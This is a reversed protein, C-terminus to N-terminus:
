AVPAAGRRWQVPAPPVWSGVRKEAEFVCAAGLSWPSLAQGGCARLRWTPGLCHVSVIHLGQRQLCTRWHSLLPVRLSSGRGRLRYPSLPNFVCLWVRGGAVLVRAGEELWQGAEQAPPHQLVVDGMCDSALPLPLSGRISGSYGVRDPFVHVTRTFASGSERVSPVPGLWVRPQSPRAQLRAALWTREDELLVQGPHGSFWLSSGPQRSSVPAPM